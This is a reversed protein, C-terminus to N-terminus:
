ITPAQLGYDAVIPEAFKKHVVVTGAIFDHIARKRRNFLLIVVESWIWVQQLINVSSFWSPQHQQLLKTRELVGLSSFKMPDVHALAWIEFVLVLFAFVLDVSSRKWAEIWGIPM